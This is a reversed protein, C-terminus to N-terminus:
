TQAEHTLECDSTEQVDDTVVVMYASQSLPFGMGQGVGPFTEGPYLCVFLCFSRRCCALCFFKNVNVFKM